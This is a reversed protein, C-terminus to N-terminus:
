RLSREFADTVVLSAERIEVSGDVLVALPRLRVESVEARWDQVFAAVRLLADGLASIRSRRDAATEGLLLPAGRLEGLACALNAPTCPLAVSCRDDSALGHPDAFALEALALGDSVSRIDVHLIARPTSTASVTVGLLRADPARSRALMM